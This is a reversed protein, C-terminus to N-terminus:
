IYNTRDDNSMQALVGAYNAPNNRIETFQTNFRQRVRGVASRRGAASSLAQRTSDFMTASQAISIRNAIAQQEADSYAMNTLFQNFKNAQDSATLSTSARAVVNTQLGAFAARNTSAVHSMFAYVDKDANALSTEGKANLQAALAGSDIFTKFDGTGGAGKYKTYEKMFTDGSSGMEREISARMTPDSMVAANNYLATLAEERGGKQLLDRFAAVFRQPDLKRLADNLENNVTTKDSDQYMGQYQRITGGSVQQAQQYAMNRVGYLARGVRSTPPTIGGTASGYRRQHRNIIRNARANQRNMNAYRMTNSNATRQALGGAWRGRLGNLAAGLQGTARYANRTLGPILFLPGAEAVMAVLIIFLNNEAAGSALIIKSALRGGAIMLAAIPYLVLMGRLLQAWRDFLNKTNPLTYCVFALPSIAVLLVVVTQRMALMFFLFLVSVLAGVLVPVVALLAGSIMTWLAGAGGAVIGTVTLGGLVALVTFIISTAYGIGSLASASTVDINIDNILSYVGSGAINSIDVLLQCIYFSLNVLIAATILKPLTKKIGYNDIGIGTIQSFIVVLLLIVFIVNAFDRFVSWAQFTGNNAGTADFLGSRIQLSPEIITEYAWVSASAALELVPCLVWGLAGATSHCTAETTPETPQGAPERSPDYYQTTVTSSPITTGVTNTSSYYYGRPPGADVALLEAYLCGPGNNNPNLTCTVGDPVIQIIAQIQLDNTKSSPIDVTAVPTGNNSVILKCNKSGDAECDTYNTGSSDGGVIMYSITVDNNGNNAFLTKAPVTTTAIRNKNRDYLEITYNKNNDVDASAPTTFSFITLFSPIILLAALAALALSKFKKCFIRSYM